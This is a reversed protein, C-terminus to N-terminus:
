RPDPGPALQDEVLAAFIAAGVPLVTDNFDYRPNHLSVSDGGPGAVGLRFYAGPKELLMFAFDESTMSPEVDREVNEAGLLDGAIRAVAEAAEASNITPPYLEEVTLEATAGAMRAGHEVTERLRRLLIEQVDKRYWKVMGAIEATKPVISLATPAGAHLYHIGIVASDFPDVNKSVIAQLATVIGAAAAIPDTAHQPHGGHGGRGVVRVRFRDIGAMMPGRNLGVKGAALAPWNHLAYVREAPFRDFLGDEIMARAGAHGEEGPQFILYATGAFNRTAALYRAAGLLMTTHGDHGCGHMKGQHCSRHGFQNEEHIPLADMDARLGISRAASPRGKGRVVGVVGTRGIGTHVEDVGYARLHRAVTEATRVEEYGLEPHAHLDHRIRVLEPQFTEIARRIEALAITQSTMPSTM